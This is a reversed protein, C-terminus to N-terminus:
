KARGARYAKMVCAQHRPCEKSNAHVKSHLLHVCFHGDFNNSSTPNAMHPMCHISAAVTKGHYTVWVAHRDWSWRGGAIKKMVATDAATVPESDAHYWGGFRRANFSLGTDVDTITFYAGKKLWDSGGKFWDLLVVTGKVRNYQATAHTVKNNPDYIETLTEDGAIGDAQIGCIDQFEAVAKKTESGYYGTINALSLFGRDALKQQLKKVEEGQMGTKLLVELASSGPKSVTLTEAKVYGSNDGATIYYWEGTINRVKVAQGAALTDVVYSQKVPMGYMPTKDHLVYANRTGSAIVFVLDNRVYGNIGEYVVHYWGNDLSLIEFTGYLPIQALIECNTNPEARLNVDATVVTGMSKIGDARAFSFCVTFLFIITLAYFFSKM